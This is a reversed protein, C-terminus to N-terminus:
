RNARLSASRRSGAQQARRQDTPGAFAHSIPVLNVVAGDVLRHGHLEVPPFIGPIAASALLAPRVPGGVILIEDGTDLDTTVVRLRVQLDAFDEAPAAQDLVTLLGENSALHDDRRLVNWARKWTGGPFLQEGRLGLWVEELEDVKELTPTTALAAGNLAGASTGVIVDPFFGRELLARLMGVQAVGQNAGGSLVFANVAPGPQRAM